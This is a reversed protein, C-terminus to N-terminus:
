TNGYREDVLDMNISPLIPEDRDAGSGVEVESM